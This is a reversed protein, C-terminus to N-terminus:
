FHMIEINSSQSQNIETCNIGFLLAINQLWQLVTIVTCNETIVTCNETIVTCNKTIVTCNETIVTCFDTVFQDSQRSFMRHHNFWRILKFCNLKFFYRDCIAEFCFLCPAVSCLTFTAKAHFIHSKDKNKFPFANVKFIIDLRIQAHATFITQPTCLCVVNIYIVHLIQTMILFKIIADRAPAFTSIFLKNKKRRSFLRFYGWNSSYIM